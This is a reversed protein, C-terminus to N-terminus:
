RGIQYLSRIEDASLARNYLRVEDIKGAFYDELTLAAELSGIRINDGEPMAVGSNGSSAFVGNNYFTFSSGSRTVTIMSWQNVPPRIGSALTVSGAGGFWFEIDANPSAYYFLEWDMNDFNGSNRKSIITPYNTHYLSTPYIWASITFDATLETSSTNTILVYDNSGDFDLAKGRKGTVWDEATMNTLAGHNGRGSFDTTTSGFGDDMSWYGVLGNRSVTKITQNATTAGSNYLNAVETASLVRHYIRVDDLMGELAFGNGALQLTSTTNSMSNSTQSTNSSIYAGNIYFTCTSLLQDGNAITGVLHYWTGVTPSVASGAACHTVDAATTAGFSFEHGVGGAGMSWEGSKVIPTTNPNVATEKYWLAITMNPNTAPSFADDDNFYVGRSFGDFYLAKGRKGSQWLPVNGYQGTFFGTRGNGSFDTTTTGVGDEFSWYAALGTNDKAKVTGSGGGSYLQSIETASLARNYIRLDDLKGRLTGANGKSIVDLVYAFVTGTSTNDQIGNLYVVYSTGSRTFTWHQWTAITAATSAAIEDSTGNYIRVRQNFFNIDNGGAAKGVIADENGNVANLYSWFSISFDGALSITPISVYNTGDFSLSKGRKGAGWTPGNTLTGTNGNGSFDTAKTSTGDDLKWYGVLGLSSPPSKLVAASATPVSCILGILGILGITSALLFQLASGARGLVASRSIPRARLSSASDIPRILRILRISFIV